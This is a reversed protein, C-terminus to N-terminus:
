RVLTVDGYLTLIEGDVFELEAVWVFVGPNTAEGRFRGDWGSPEHNTQINEAQFLQEGWRDFIKLYRIRLVSADSYITFFSNIGEANDAHFVNPVYIRRKPLIQFCVEDSAQCGSQSRVLVRQCGSKIPIFRFEDCDACQASGGTGAWTYDLIEHPPINTQATLVLEEGLNLTQDLGLDVAPTLMETIVAGGSATCGHADSVTVSYAGSALDELSAGGQGNNWIFQYPAVGGIAMALISGDAVELCSAPQALPQVVLLPPEDVWVQTTTVCQQADVVSLAYWGSALGTVQAGNAGHQWLFAYPATGGTAEASAMGDAGGFCYAPLSTASAALATPQTIPIGTVHTCGEADTITLQYNGAMLGQIGAGTQGNSWAYNYPPTGGVPQALAQGNQGGFCSVPIVDPLAGLPPPENVFATGLETCGQADTTTFSYAGAGLSFLVAGTQGNSWVITWPPTGGTTQVTLIGDAGGHCSVMETQASVQLLEPQQVAAESTTTCGAADTTTVSYLAAPLDHLTTTTQGNSWLYTHPLQGGTSQVSATGDAAGFCQAAESVVTAELLAPQNVTALARTSCGHVDTLTLAYTGAPLNTAQATTDGNDWLFFYPATGGGPTALSIGNNGGFCSVDAAAIVVTLLDPEAIVANVLTTCGQVDTITVEYAGAALNHIQATTQGQGWLYTYPPVGGTAPAAVAGDQGGFCKVDDMVANGILVPPEAVTVMAQGTCGNADTVTATYTGASLGSIVETTFGQNWLYSFPTVGGTANLQISGDNGAFCSVAAVVADTLLVQPEAVMGTIVVSCGQVDTITATYEGTALGGLQADTQGQAWLYNYPAVGGAPQLLLGGNNGGFCSVAQSQVNATLLPPETIAGSDAVICGNADTITLAYNGAPLAAANETTQGDHWLFSYPAIGGSTQTTVAANQGGFCSVSTAMTALSLPDPSSITVSNTFTCGHTDTVTLLYNGAILGQLTDGTQGNSWAFQYPLTGGSAIGSLSGDASGFCRVPQPNAFATLADPESLTVSALASCGAADTITVAYIGAPLGGIQASQSGNEWSYHYPALGGIPQANASGSAQAHCLADTGYAQASLPPAQLLHIDQTVVRCNSLTLNPADSAILLRYIQGSQPDSLQLVLSDAGPIDQWVGNVLTQWQYVPYAYPPNDLVVEIQAPAGQCFWATDSSMIEPGCARFSINDIALDNGFGGPANNRMGLTLSTQGPATTFSFRITHWQEDLPIDGTECQEVGDLLFSLNPRISNPSHDEFLNIVDVSFEYLTNECVAVQNQFFIGPPYSANVVMMYGNPEPGNDEVDIWVTSAFWGWGATSNAITYYGDNPPPNTQYIYGPALGPNVPIINPIGAGFDGNPYINEGLEGTCTSTCAALFRAQQAALQSTALLFFLLFPLLQKL